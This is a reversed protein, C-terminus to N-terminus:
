CWFAEPVPKELEQRQLYRSEASLEKLSREIEFLQDCYNRGTEAATIRTGEAKKSPIAEVFKRRLHAWCGCRTIDKLKNYGQYGDSHVYGQFTKLFSVAHEGNRSPQYDYLVFLAKGDNGTRYLWMYSKTQPRKGEEKLVQVPTEDCHIIDRELLHKRLHDTVPLLYNESCRIIWNAMTARSLAIGIHEWDKEQRYLPVSNVYKQYMVQAVSSPSALSHNM